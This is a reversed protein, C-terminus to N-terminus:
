AEDRVMSLLRQVIRAGDARLGNHEYENTVWTRVNPVRQATQLSLERPVYADAFYVAAAVPVPNAQLREGDYLMPWDDKEALIQATERFPQLAHIDELLSPFIMEGTLYLPGERDLAFEPFESLMRQASWRSAFGQTYCGEHLLAYLPNTDYHLFSEVQRLFGYHMRPGKQGGVFAEDLLFHLAAMGDSMGFPQGLAQLHEVSFRSGGPLTVENERLHQALSRVREVNEPYREYFERNKEAMRRYTWRYVEDIPADIGPLGGTILVERLSDPATSLYHMSCFGGFSQGLLSWRGSPGLLAVRLRECDQVIADMRFHSLYEAQQHPGGRALLSDGHIPTSRGTGRQDLLLIRFQPLLEAIWGGVTTPRPAACGPGGQLFVLMPLDGAQSGAARLERAFIEIEEGHPDGSDLPVRLFHDLMTLGPLHHTKTKMASAPRLTPPLTAALPFPECAQTPAVRQPPLARPLTELAAACCQGLKM